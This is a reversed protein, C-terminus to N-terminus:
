GKKSKKNPKLGLGRLHNYIVGRSLGLVKVMKADSHMGSEWLTKVDKRERVKDTLLQATEMIEKRPRTPKNPELIRMASAVEEKYTWPMPAPVPAPAPTVNKISIGVMNNMQRIINLLEQGKKTIALWTPKKKDTSNTVLGRDLLFIIYSKSQDNSLMAHYMIRTRSMEGYQELAGLMELLIDNRSRNIM